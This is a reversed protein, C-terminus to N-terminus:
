SLLPVLSFFAFLWFKEGFEKDSMKVHPTLASCTDMMAEVDLKEASSDHSETFYM